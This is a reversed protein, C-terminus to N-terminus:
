FDNLSSQDSESIRKMRKKPVFLIKLELESGDQANQVARSINKSAKELDEKIEKEYTEKERPDDPFPEFHHLVEETRNNIISAEAGMTLHDKIYKSYGQQGIIQIPNNVESFVIDAKEEFADWKLAKEDYLVALKRPGYKNTDSHNIGREVDLRLTEEFSEDEHYAGDLTENLNVIGRYQPHNEIDFPESLKRLDVPLCLSQSWRFEIPTSGKLSYDINVRISDLEGDRHLDLIKGVFNDAYPRGKHRRSFLHGNTDFRMEMKGPLVTLWTSVQESVVRGQDIFEDYTLLQIEGNEKLKRVVRNLAVFVELWYDVTGDIPDRREKDRFTSKTSFLPEGGTIRFRGFPRKKEIDPYKSVLKCETCRAIDSPSMFRYGTFGTPSAPNKGDLINRAYCFWCYYQCGVTDVVLIVPNKNMGGLVQKQTEPRM